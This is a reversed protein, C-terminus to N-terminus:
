LFFHIAQPNYLFPFITMAVGQEGFVVYPDSLASTANYSAGNSAYASKISLVYYKM